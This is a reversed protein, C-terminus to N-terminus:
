EVEKKPSFVAHLLVGLVGGLLIFWISSFSVSLLDFLLMLVFVIGFSIRSVANKELKKLMDIGARLILFAVGCKIGTFASPM